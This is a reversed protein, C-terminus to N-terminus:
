FLDMVLDVDAGLEVLCQMIEMDVEYDDRWGAKLLPTMGREDAKNTDAGLETVLLEMVEIFGGEVAANLPGATQVRVGQRAWQRLSESDGNASAQTVMAETVLAAAVLSSSAAHISTSAGNEILYRVMDLNGKNAAQSLPTRGYIAQYDAQNVNAGLEQLLCKAVEIFGCSAAVCLPLGTM